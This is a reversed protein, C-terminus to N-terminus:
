HRLRQVLLVALALVIVVAGVLSIVITATDSGPACYDVDGPVKDLRNGVCDMGLVAGSLFMVIGFGVLRKLWATSRLKRDVAM